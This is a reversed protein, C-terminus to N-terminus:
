QSSTKTKKGSKMQSIKDSLRKIFQDDHKEQIMQQLLSEALDIHGTDSYLRGALAFVFPPGGNKGSAILLDAAKKKDHVEYLYHYAARYLILWDNPFQRIAKDFIKTAGEVDSIMVTLALAGASYPMRFSPSLETIADIMKYLWSNNCVDKSIIEDCYDLDQIARIWMIDALSENFGVTLNKLYPPPSILIRKSSDVSESLQFSFVVAMFAFIGFMINPIKAKLIGVSVVSKLEVFRMDKHFAM